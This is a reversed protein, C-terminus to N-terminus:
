NHNTLIPPPSMIPTTSSRVPSNIPSQPNPLSVMNVNPLQQTNKTNARHKWSTNEYTDYGNIPHSKYGFIEIMYKTVEPKTVIVGKDNAYKQAETRFEGHQVGNIGPTSVLYNNAYEYITDIKNLEIESLNKLLPEYKALRKIRADHENAVKLQTDLSLAYKNMQEHIKALEEQLRQQIQLQILENIKNQDINVNSTNGLQQMYQQMYQHIHQPYQSVDIYVPRKDDKEHLYKKLSYNEGNNEYEDALSSLLQDRFNM